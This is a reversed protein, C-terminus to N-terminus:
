ARALFFAAVEQWADNLAKMAEHSGGAADPHRQRALERYRARAEALTTDRPLGLVDWAGRLHGPVRRQAEEAELLRRVTEWHEAHRRARDEIKKREREFQQRWRARRQAEGDARDLPFQLTVDWSSAQRRFREARERRQEPPLGLYGDLGGEADWDLLDVWLEVFGRFSEWQGDRLTSSAGQYRTAIWALAEARFERDLDLPAQQGEPARTRQPQPGAEV